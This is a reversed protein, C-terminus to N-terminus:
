LSPLRDQWIRGIAAGLRRLGVEHTLRSAESPQPAAAGIVFVATSLLLATAYDERLDAAGYTEIGHERLASVYAALLSEEHAALVAPDVDLALFYALDYAGRARCAFQWDFAIVAEGPPLFLNDLRFDGHCLTVPPSAMAELLAVYGDVAADLAPHAEAPVLHRVREWSRAFASQVPLARDLGVTTYPLWEPARDWWHAHMTALSRVVREAEDPTCGRVQDGQPLGGLDELLLIFHDQADIEAAYARPSHLPTSSALDRYFRVEREYWRQFRAVGRSAEGPFKAILSAPVGVGRLRLRYAEANIGSRDTIPEVEFADVQGGLVAGLWERDIEEPSRPVEDM